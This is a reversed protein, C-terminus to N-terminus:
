RKVKRGKWEYGGFTAWCGVIVVYPLQLIEAIPFYWLLKEQNYHKNITWLILFDVLCKLLFIKFAFLHYSPVCLGVLLALHFLYISVITAVLVKSPYLGGKSAWRRRQNLFSKIDELPATRVLANPAPNFRIKWTTTAHIKQMLLEDDGSTLHDIGDFGKIDLFVSRRYAVNAGNCMNPRNIGIGGAGVGVLGSFELAQIGTFLSLKHTFFSVGGSVFATEPTFHAVMSSIWQPQVICDADTTLIIEANSQMVAKEIVRKKHAKTELQNEPVARLKLRNGYKVQCKQVIQATEDESCDDAVVVEYNPYTNEFIANLCNEINQAENRAPVIVTVKPFDQLVLATTKLSKRLGIWFFLLVITYIIFLYIM